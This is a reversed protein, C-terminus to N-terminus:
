LHMSAHLMTWAEGQSCWFKISSSVDHVHEDLLGVDNEEVDNKPIISHSHEHSYVENEERM